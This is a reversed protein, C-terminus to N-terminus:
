MLKKLQAEKEQLQTKLGAIEVRLKKIDILRRNDSATVPSETVTEQELPLGNNQEVAAAFEAERHQKLQGDEHLVQGLTKEMNPNSQNYIHNLSPARGLQVFIDKLNIIDWSEAGDPFHLKARQRNSVVNEEVEMVTAGSGAWSEASVLNCFSIRDGAMLKFPEFRSALCRVVGPKGESDSGTFRCMLGTDSEDHGDCGYVADRLFKILKSEQLPSTCRVLNQSM